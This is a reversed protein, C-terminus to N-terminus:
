TSPDLVNARGESRAQPRSRSGACGEFSTARRTEIAALLKAFPEALLRPGEKLLQATVDDILNGPCRARGDHPAGGGRAAAPASATSCASRRRSRDM